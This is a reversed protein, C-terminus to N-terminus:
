CLSDYHLFANNGLIRQVLRYQFWLLTSDKVCQFPLLYYQEWDSPTFIFGQNTYKIQSKPTISKFNILAYMDKCGRQNKLLLQLKFPFIPNSITSFINDKLDNLNKIYSKVAKVLSAYHMFNTTIRYINIFNEYDLIDGQEDFLDSIFIIGKSVYNKFIFPKRDILIESNHM